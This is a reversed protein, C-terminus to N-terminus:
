VYSSGIVVCVIQVVM